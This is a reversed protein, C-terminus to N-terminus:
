IWGADSIAVANVMFDNAVFAYRRGFGTGEAVRPLWWERMEGARPRM